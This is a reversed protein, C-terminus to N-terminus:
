EILLRAARCSARQCMPFSPSVGLGVGFADGEQGFEGLDTAPRGSHPADTDGVTHVGAPAVADIGGPGRDRAPTFQEGGRQADLTLMEHAM